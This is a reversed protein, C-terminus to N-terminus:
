SVASGESFCYTVKPHLDPINLSPSIKSPFMLRRICSVCVCFDEMVPFFYLVLSCQNVSFVSQDSGTVQAGLDEWFLDHLEHSSWSFSSRNLACIERIVHCCVPSIHLNWRPKRNDMLRGDGDGDLNEAPNLLEPHPFATKLTDLANEMM